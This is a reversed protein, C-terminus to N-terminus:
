QVLPRLLLRARVVRSGRARIVAPHALPIPTPHVGAQGLGVAPQPGPHIPFPEQGLLPQPRGNSLPALLQAKWRRARNCGLDGQAQRHHLPGCCVPQRELQEGAVGEVPPVAWKPCIHVHFAHPLRRLHRRVWWDRQTCRLHSHWLLAARPSPRARSQGHQAPLSRVRHAGQGAMGLSPPLLDHPAVGCAAPQCRIPGHLADPGDSSALPRPGCPQDYSAVGLAVARRGQEMGRLIGRVFTQDRPTTSSVESLTGKFLRLRRAAPVCALGLLIPCPLMM